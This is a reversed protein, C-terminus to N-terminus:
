RRDLIRVSVHGYILQTNIDGVRTLDGRDIVIDKGAFQREKRLVPWFPADVLTLDAPRCFSAVYLRAPIRETLDGVSNEICFAGNPETVVGPLLEEFGGPGFYLLAETRAVEDPINVVKGCVSRKRIQAMSGTLF